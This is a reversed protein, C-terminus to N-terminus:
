PNDLTPFGSAISGTTDEHDSMTTAHGTWGTSNTSNGMTTNGLSTDNGQAHVFAQAGIFLFLGGIVTLATWTAIQSM